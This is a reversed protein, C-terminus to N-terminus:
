AGLRGNAKTRWRMSPKSLVWAVYVCVRDTRWRMSPKSFYRGALDDAKSLEGDCLHNLFNVRPLGKWPMPEGDCLHNLFQKTANIVEGLWNAM